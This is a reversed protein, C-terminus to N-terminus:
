KKNKYEIIIEMINLTQKINEEDFTDLFDNLKQWESEELKSAEGSGFLLYDTSVNLIRSLSILNDVTINYYGNEIKVYTSYALDMLEAITEQTMGKSKRIKKIRGCIILREMRDLIDGKESIIINDLIRKYKLANGICM